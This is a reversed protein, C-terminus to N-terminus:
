RKLLRARIATVTLGALSLTLVVAAVAPRPQWAAGWALGGLLGVVGLALRLTPYHRTQRQEEFAAREVARRRRLEDLEGAVRQLDARLSAQRNVLGGRGKLQEAAIAEPRRSVELLRRVHAVRAQAAELRERLARGEAEEEGAAVGPEPVRTRESM